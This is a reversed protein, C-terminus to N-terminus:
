KKKEDNNGIYNYAYRYRYNYRYYKKRYTYKKSRKSDVGNLVTGLIKINAFNCADVAYRIDDRNTCGDRVVLLVGDTKPAIALADSVVNVPATDYIIYDYKEKVTDVFNAFAESGLFELPSPPLPGTTLIDLYSNFNQVSDEIASIGALVSYLGKTNLMKTKKHISPRRMDADVLLVRKNIQSFVIAINLATTSKGDSPAASTVVFSRCGTQPLSFNLNTRITKYAEVVAFPVRKANSKKTQVETAPKADNPLVETSHVENEGPLTIDKAM